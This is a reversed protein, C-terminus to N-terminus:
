DIKDASRHDIMKMDHSQIENASRFMGTQLVPKSLSLSTLYTHLGMRTTGHVTNRVHVDANVADHLVVCVSRSFGIKNGSLALFWSKTHHIVIVPYARSGKHHLLVGDSKRM